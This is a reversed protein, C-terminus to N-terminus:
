FLYRENREALASILRETTARVQLHAALPMTRSTHWAQARLSNCLRGFNKGHVELASDHTRRGDPVLLMEM